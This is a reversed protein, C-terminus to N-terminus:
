DRKQVSSARVAVITESDRLNLQQGPYYMRSNRTKGNELFCFQFELPSKEAIELRRAGEVCLSTSSSSIQQGMSDRVKLWKDLPAESQLFIIEDRAHVGDSWALIPRSCSVRGSAYSVQVEVSTATRDVCNLAAVIRARDHSMAWVRGLVFVEVGLGAAVGRVSRIVDPWGTAFDDGSIIADPRFTKAFFTFNALWPPNVHTADDFYLAIPKDWSDRVVDPSYGQHIVLNPIDSTYKDFASRSLAEGLREEIWPASEFTDITHIEAGGRRGAALAQTSSGFLPGIELIVAADDADTPAYKALSKLFQLGIKTMTRPAKM